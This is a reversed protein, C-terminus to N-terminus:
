RRHRRHRFYGPRDDGFRPSGEIRKGFFEKAEEATMTKRRAILANGLERELKGQAVLSSDIITNLKTEDIPDKALERMLEKKTERFEDRLSQLRENDRVLPGEGHRDMPGRFHEGGKPPHPPPTGFTLRVYLFSGIVALNFALSIFLLIVIWRKSM